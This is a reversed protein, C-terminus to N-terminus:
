PTEEVRWHGPGSGVGDVNHQSHLGDGISVLKISGGVCTMTRYEVLQGRGICSDNDHQCEPPLGLYCFQVDYGGSLVDNCSCHLVG